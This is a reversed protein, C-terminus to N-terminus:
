IPDFCVYLLNCDIYSFVFLCIICMHILHSLFLISLIRWQVIIGYFTRWLRNTVNLCSCVDMLSHEDDCQIFPHCKLRSFLLTETASMRDCLFLEDLIINDITVSAPVFPKVFRQHYESDRSFEPNSNEPVVFCPPLIVKKETYPCIYLSEENWHQYRRLLFRIYYQYYQEKFSKTMTNFLKYKRPIGDQLISQNELYFSM